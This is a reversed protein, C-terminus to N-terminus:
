QNTKHNQTGGGDLRKRREAEVDIPDYLCKLFTTDTTFAYLIRYFLMPDQLGVWLMGDSKGHKEFLTKIWRVDEALHVRSILGVFAFANPQANRRKIIEKGMPKFALVQGLRYPNGSQLAPHKDKGQQSAELAWASTAIHHVVYQEDDTIEDAEPINLYAQCFKLYRDKPPMVREDFDVLDLFPAFNPYKKELFTIYELSESIARLTKLKPDLLEGPFRKKLLNFTEKELTTFEREEHKYATPAAYLGPIMFFLLCVTVTKM